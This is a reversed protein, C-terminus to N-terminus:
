PHVLRPVSVCTEVHRLLQGCLVKRTFGKSEDHQDMSGGDSHPGVTQGDACRGACIAVPPGSLRDGDAEVVEGGGALLTNM